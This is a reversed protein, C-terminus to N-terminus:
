EIGKLKDPNRVVATVHHGLELARRVACVGTPGTAGFVALRPYALSSAAM